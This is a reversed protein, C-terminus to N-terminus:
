RERGAELRAAAHARAAEYPPAPPAGDLFARYQARAEPVRGAREYLRGLNFRAPFFTADDRLMAEYLGTAEDAHGARILLNALNFRADLLAPDLGAARRYAEIALAPEGKREAIFGQGLFARATRITPAGREAEVIARYLPEASGWRPSKALADAVALRAPSSAATVEVAKVARVLTEDARAADGLAGYISALVALPEPAGPDLRVAAELAERARAYDGRGQYLTGLNFYALRYDPALELARRYADIARPADGRRAYGAGLNLHAVPSGPAKAAADAWLRMEDGWVPNRAVTALALVLLAVCGAAPLARRIASGPETRRYAAWGALGVAASVGMWGIYGRHEQFIVNLPYALTPLLAVPFWLLLFGASRREDDTRILWHAGWVIVATFAVAGAVVALRWPVDYVPVDHLVSLRFPWMFTTVYHPFAALQTWANSWVDRTGPQAGALAALVAGHYGTLLFYGALLAGCAAYPLLWARWGIGRSWGLDYCVWLLPATVAIEKSGLGLALASMALAAAGLAALAGRRGRAQARRFVVFAWVSVAYWLSALISSRAAIYNVAESNAPTVAFLLGAAVAPAPHGALTGILAMLVATAAWHLAVNVAHYGVPDLGGFRHNLAYTLSTLPRYHGGGAEAAWAGWWSGDVAGARLRANDVITHRDDYQFPGHLGNAYLLVILPLCGLIGAATWAGWRGGRGGPAPHDAPTRIKGDNM